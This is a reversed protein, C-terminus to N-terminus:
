SNNVQTKSRVTQLMLVFGYVVLADSITLFSEALGHLVDVNTLEEGFYILSIIAFIITMFVFLLTLKFGIFSIKPILKTKGAFHLFVLYPILSIIFFPSPDIQAMSEISLVSINM